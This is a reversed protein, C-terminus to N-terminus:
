LSNPNILLLLVWIQLWQIGLVVDVGSIPLVHLDVLFKHGQIKLEVGPFISDCELESSNGVM